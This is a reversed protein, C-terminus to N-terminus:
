QLSGYVQSTKIVKLKIDRKKLGYKGLVTSLSYVNKQMKDM